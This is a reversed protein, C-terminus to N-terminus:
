KRYKESIIKPVANEWVVKHHLRNKKFGMLSVKVFSPCQMVTYFTKRYTGNKKSLASMGSDSKQNPVQELAIHPVTLFLDGRSGLLTYSSADSNIRGAFKFPRDVSCFFSNMCKRSQNIYNSIMGSGEGGIFDGGQAFAISKANIIKFFDLFDKFWIDLNKPGGKTTYKNDVFRYRFNTYDDDFQAFYKLGLKNAVKWVGHRVYLISRREPFNDGLDMEHEVEKKSFVVVEDGYRKVYKQITPDEDDVVLYIKGTYGQSRLTGYTHVKDPRGNTLILVAFDEM